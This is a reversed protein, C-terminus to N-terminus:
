RNTTVADLGGTALITIKWSSGSRELEFKTWGVNNGYDSELYRQPAGAVGNPNVTNVLFYVGPTAPMPLEQGITSHHYQDLWNPSIGQISEASYCDKYVGDNGLGNQEVQVWDILCYTIKEGGAVLSGDLMSSRLEYKTLDSMHWHKHAVHYAATGAVTQSVVAGAPDYVWQMATSVGGSNVPHLELPGAGINAIGISFRLLTEGSGGKAVNIADPTVSVLDPYQPAGALVPSSFLAGSVAAAMLKRM